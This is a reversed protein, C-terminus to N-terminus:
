VSSLVWFSSQLLKMMWYLFVHRDVKFLTQCAVEPAYIEYDSFTNFWNFHSQIKGVGSAIFIFAKHFLSATTSRKLVHRNVCIHRVGALVNTKYITLFM